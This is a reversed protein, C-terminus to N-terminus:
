RSSRALLGRRTGKPLRASAKPRMSWERRSGHLHWSRPNQANFLTARYDKRSIRQFRGLAVLHLIAAVHAVIEM